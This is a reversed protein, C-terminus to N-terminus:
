SNATKDKNEAYLDKFTKDHLAKVMEHNSISREIGGVVAQCVSLVEDVSMGSESLWVCLSESHKDLRDRREKMEKLQLEKQKDLVQKSIDTM